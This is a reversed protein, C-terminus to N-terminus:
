FMLSKNVFHVFHLGIRRWFPSLPRLSIRLTWKRLNVFDMTQLLPVMPGDLITYDGTYCYQLVRVMALLDYEELHVENLLGEKFGHRTANEFYSTRLSLINHHAHFIYSPGTDGLRLYIKLDSHKPSSWLRSLRLAYMLISVM